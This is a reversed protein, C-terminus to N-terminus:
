HPHLRPQPMQLSFAEKRAAQPRKHAHSDAAQSVAEQDARHVIRTSGRQDKAEPLGRFHHKAVTVFTKVKTHDPNDIDSNLAELYNLAHIFFVKWQLINNEHPYWCTQKHTSPPATNLGAKYTPSSMM